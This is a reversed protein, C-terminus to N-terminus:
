WPAQYAGHRNFKPTAILKLVDRAIHHALQRAAGSREITDNASLKAVIGASTHLGLITSPPLGQSTPGHSPGSLPTWKRPQGISDLVTQGAFTHLKVEIRRAVPADVIVMLPLGYVGIVFQMGDRDLPRGLKAQWGLGRCKRKAPGPALADRGPLNPWGGSLGLIDHVPFSAM